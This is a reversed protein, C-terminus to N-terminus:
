VPALFSSTAPSNTRTGGVPSPVSKAFCVQAHQSEDVTSTSSLSLTIRLTAAAICSRSGTSYRSALRGVQLTALTDDDILGNGRMSSLLEDNLEVSEAIYQRRRRLLQRECEDM